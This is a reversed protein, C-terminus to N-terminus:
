SSCVNSDKRGLYGEVIHYNKNLKEVCAKIVEADWLANHQNGSDMESFRMRNVDPDVGCVSLYTSLDRPIYYIYEPVKLAGNWLNCFLVWDYAYCDCWIQCKEFPGESIQVRLWSELFRRCEDKNVNFCSLTFLDSGEPTFGEILNKTVTYGEKIDAKDKEYKAPILHQIVNEAIWADVGSEDYDNLVAYFKHGVETILGISILTTDQVLGTFETDMYVNLM